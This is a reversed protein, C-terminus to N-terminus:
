LTLLSLMRSKDKKWHSCQLRNSFNLKLFAKGSYVGVQFDGLFIGDLIQVMHQEMRYGM